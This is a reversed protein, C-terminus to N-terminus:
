RRSSSTLGDQGAPRQHTRAVDPPPIRAADPSGVLDRAVERAIDVDFGQLEGSVPDRFSFLNTSQDIGAVLRGRKRIAEVTPGPETSPRLSATADCSEVAAGLVNSVVAAGSPTPLTTLSAPIEVLPQATSCAAVFVATLVLGGAAARMLPLENLRPAVGAAVALAALVSIAAAGAPLASLM